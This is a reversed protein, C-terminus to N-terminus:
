LVPPFPVLLEVCLDREKARHSLHTFLPQPHMLPRLLRLGTLFPRFLLVLLILLLPDVQADGLDGAGRDGRDDRGRERGSEADVAGNEAGAHDADDRGAASGDELVEERARALPEM